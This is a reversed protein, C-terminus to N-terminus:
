TGIRETFRTLRLRPKLFEAALFLATCLLTFPFRFGWLAPIPLGYLADLVVGLALLEYAHRAHLTLAVGLPVVLWWPLFFAASFLALDAFFRRM